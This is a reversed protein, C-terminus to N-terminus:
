YNLFYICTFLYLFYQVQVMIFCNCPFCHSIDINFKRGQSVDYAKGEYEVLVEKLENDPEFKSDVVVKEIDVNVNAGEQTLTIASFERFDTGSKLVIKDNIQLAFFIPIFYSTYHFFIVLM